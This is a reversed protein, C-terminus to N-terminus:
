VWGSPFCKALRIRVVGSVMGAPAASEERPNPAIGLLEQNRDSTFQCHGDSCCVGGGEMDSCCEEEGAVLCAPHRQHYDM